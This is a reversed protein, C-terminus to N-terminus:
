RKIGQSVPPSPGYQWSSALMPNNPYSGLYLAGSNPYNDSSYMMQAAPNATPLQQLQQQDVGGLLPAFNPGRFGSGVVGPGIRNRGGGDGFGPRVGVAASSTVISHLPSPSQSNLDMESMQQSLEIAGPRAVVAAATSTSVGGVVGVGMGIHGNQFPVPISIQAPIQSSSGPAASSPAPNSNSTM